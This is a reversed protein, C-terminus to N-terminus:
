RVKNKTNANKEEKRKYYSKLSIKRKHELYEPNKALEAHKKLIEDRHRWYYQAQKSMKALNRHQSNKAM